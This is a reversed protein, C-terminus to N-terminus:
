PRRRGSLAISMVAVLVWVGAGTGAVIWSFPRDAVFQGFIMGAAAVNAGDFLKDSVLARQRDDWDLMTM